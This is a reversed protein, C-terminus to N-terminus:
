TITSSTEIIFSINQHKRAYEVMRKFEKRGDTKASEYTGGFYEMIAISNQKAYQECYKLQVELSGNSQKQELSSVRTYIIGDRGRTSKASSYKQTTLQELQSQLLHKKNM